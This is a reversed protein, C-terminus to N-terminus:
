ACQEKRRQVDSLFGAVLGALAVPDDLMTFHGCDSLVTASARPLRAALQLCDDPYSATDTGGGIILCPMDVAALDLGPTAAFLRFFSLWGYPSIRDRVRAAMGDVIDPAPPSTQRAVIGARLVDSFENVYHLLAAWDVADHSARYFPSLLVLGALGPIVGGASLYDLLVNAGFSHAVLVEPTEAVMSLAQALWQRPEGDLAWGYGDTADWPLRFVWPRVDPPLLSLLPDWVSAGAGLGHILGVPMQHGGSESM